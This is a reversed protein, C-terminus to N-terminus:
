WQSISIPRVLIEAVESRPVELHGMDTSIMDVATCIYSFNCRFLSAVLSCYQLDSLTMWIAEIRYVM